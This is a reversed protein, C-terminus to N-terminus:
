ALNLAPSAPLEEFLRRGESDSVTVKWRAPKEDLPDLSTGLFRAHFRAEGPGALTLAVTDFTQGDDTIHFYYKPM